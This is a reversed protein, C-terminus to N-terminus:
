GIRDKVYWDKEGTALHMKKTTLHSVRQTSRVIRTAIGVLLCSNRSQGHRPISRYIQTGIKRPDAVEQSREYSHSLSIRTRRTRLQDSSTQCWLLEETPIQGTATQRPNGQSAERSRANFWGRFYPQRQNSVLKIPHPMEPWVPSWLTVDKLQGPFQQQLFVRRLASLRGVQNRPGIYMGLAYRRTNSKSAWDTWRDSSPLGHQVESRDGLSSSAPVLIRIHISIGQRLHYDQTILASQRNKICIATCTSKCPIHDPYTPLTGGQNSHGSHGMDRRKRSSVKTIRHHFGHLNRGMEM